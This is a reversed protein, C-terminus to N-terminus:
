VLVPSGIQYKADPGIVFLESVAVISLYPPPGHMEHVKLTFAMRPLSPVMLMVKVDGIVAVTVSGPPRVM